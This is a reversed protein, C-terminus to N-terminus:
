FLQIIKSISYLCENKGSQLSCRRFIGPILYIGLPYVLSLLFSFLTDKLLHIQTNIYVAGFCSLYYWFLALFIFSIIFFLLFRFKLNQFLEKKKINSKYNIKKKKINVVDRQTM